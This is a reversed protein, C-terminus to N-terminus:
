EEAASEVEPTLALNLTGTAIFATQNEASVNISDTFEGALICNGGSLADFFGWGIIPTEVSSWAATSVPFQIAATNSISVKGIDAGSSTIAADTGFYYVNDLGKEKLSLRHYGTNSASVESQGTFYGNANFGTPMGKLLGIYVTSPLTLSSTSAGGKNTLSNLITKFYGPAIGKAM